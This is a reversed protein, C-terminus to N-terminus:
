EYKEKESKYTRYLLYIGGIILPLSLIQGMTMWGFFLGNNGIQFDPQRFFEVIFRLVGYMAVFTWSMIGKPVKKKFLFIEIGLILFNKFSEYIQSPHRFGEANPFKVAWPVDSIRGYLEGNLFNAIRGMALGLAFPITLIDSIDYFEYSKRRCFIILAAILGFLGGHFSLGGQWIIFIDLPNEFFYGINYFLVYFLRAGIMIGLAIYILLDDVDHFKLKIKKKKSLVKLMIYILLFTLSYVLGYYRIQAFGLDLLIPDINHVFM